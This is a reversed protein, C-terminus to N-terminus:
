RRQFEPSGIIIGVVQSLRYSGSKMKDSNLNEQSISNEERSVEMENAPKEQANKPTDTHDAAENIKDSLGPANLLPTLRAITEDPNREPLMLRCYTQLADEASEPEHHSNLKHLDFRVGPIKGSALALGFNMRNLLSGTSIWYQGKDPFGTPAQYHYMKQGMRDLWSFFEQPETVTANLSRLASIVLEFPSKTKERVADPAWFEPSHVLAVLTQKIDGNKERFTRGMRDILKKPPDDSVFRIAIKRCIFNATSPHQALMSLLALGEQYGGHSPFRKGLVTKEGKDHRDPAFMFDGERIFGSAQLKDKGRREMRKQIEKGYRGNGMPYVTWGTLIRAAETVDKQTYGGDVGLTHLEMVERAYNENLGRMRKPQGKKDVSDKRNSRADPSVSTANDLYLLMAPSKATAILLTEFNGLANPRIADREHSLVFPACAAKTFSVNFHNFWFETMVEQLQNQSYLARLIKQSGFQKVLQHQPELGKEKAYAGLKERYAKKDTKDISDRLIVGDNVAMRLIKGNRPYKELIETNSLTLAEYPHLNDNLLDDNLNASLQQDFWKELGTKLVFDVQAPNAGYTFRSLLHAAAQRETLGAQKYPFGDPQTHNVTQFSLLTLVATLASLLFAPFKNQITM